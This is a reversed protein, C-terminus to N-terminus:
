RWSGVHQRLEEEAARRAEAAVKLHAAADEFDRAAGVLPHNEDLRGAVKVHGGQIGCRNAIEYLALNAFWDNSCALKVAALVHGEPQGSAAALKVAGVLRRCCDEYVTEAQRLHECLVSAQKELAGYVAGDSKSIEAKKNTATMTVGGSSAPLPIEHDGRLSSLVARPDAPGGPFVVNKKPGARSFEDLLAATNTEEVVRKVQEDNLGRGRVVSAVAATLPTGEKYKSAAERALRLIEDVTVM